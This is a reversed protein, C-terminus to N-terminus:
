EAKEAVPDPDPLPDPSLRHVLDTFRERVRPSAPVDDAPVGLRESPRRTLHDLDFLADRLRDEDAAIIAGDVAQLAQEAEAWGSEDLRLRAAWRLVTVAEAALRPDIM